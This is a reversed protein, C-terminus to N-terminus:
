QQKKTPEAPKRPRSASKIYFNMFLALLTLMYWFLVTALLPPYYGRTGYIMHYTSQGLMLCFQFMQAQTLYKKYVVNYGLATLFYYSYMLVHIFSNLGATFYSDGGPAYFIVAWWITFVSLHHYVHLFSVQHFNKKLLMIWTDIFELIKSAYFIWLVNALPAGAPSPDVGNGWLTFGNIWAQRYSEIFMYSSLLVLFLNHLLSFGKVEFREKKASMILKGIVVSLLYGLVILVVHFPNMLPFGKSHPNQYSLADNIFTNWEAPLASRVVTEFSNILEM